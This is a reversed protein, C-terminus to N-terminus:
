IATPVPAPLRRPLRSRRRNLLRYSSSRLGIPRRAKTCAPSRRHQVMSGATSGGPEGLDDPTIGLSALFGGPDTGGLGSLLSAIDFEDM